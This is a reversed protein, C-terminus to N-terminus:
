SIGVGHYTFGNKILNKSSLINRGDFVQMDLLKKLQELDPDWFQKWETLIVLAHSSSINSYQNKVFSINKHILLKKPINKVIPDYVFIRNAKTSLMEIIEIAVSDRTDDTNPKFSLGWILLNKEKLDNKYVKTLKNSFFKTQNKNIKEVASLLSSDINFKKKTHILAKVDKPFCSGGYGIGAYLFDKGIRADSGMGHRIEHIDAGVEEALLAIGNIFSIKSALFANSAYKTLEASEVKMRIIKKSKRCLPKYVTQLLNFAKNCDAGIVIRDPRFFDNVASGEKLFEPNSCISISIGQPTFKQLLKKSIKKNTGIPVTSKMVITTSKNLNEMISSISSNLNTLDPKGNLARPTDICIFILDSSSINKYSTSLNLRSNKLNRSIIEELGPEYFPIKLKQINSIKKKDTDICTVKNGLDAFCAGSVLGVYGTGIITINM